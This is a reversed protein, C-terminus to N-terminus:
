FRRWFRSSIVFSIVFAPIFGILFDMNEGIKNRETKIFEFGTRAEAFNSCDDTFKEPRDFCTKFTRLM